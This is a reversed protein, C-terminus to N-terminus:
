KPINNGEWKSIKLQIQNLDDNTIGKHLEVEEYNRSEMLLMKAFERFSGDTMAKIASPHTKSLHEIPSKIKTDTLCTEQFEQRSILEGTQIDYIKGSMLTPNIEKLRNRTDQNMGGKERPVNVDRYFPECFVDIGKMNARYGATHTSLFFTPINLTQSLDAIGSILANYNDKFTPKERIDKLNFIKFIIARPTTREVM